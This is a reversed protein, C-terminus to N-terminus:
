IPCAPEEVKSCNACFHATKKKIRREAMPLPAAGGGIMRGCGDCVYKRGGAVCIIM